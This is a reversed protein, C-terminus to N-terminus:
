TTKYAFTKSSTTGDANRITMKVTLATYTLLIQEEPDAGGSHGAIQHSVVRAGSITWRLYELNRGDIIETFAIYTSDSLPRLTGASNGLFGTSSDIRKTIAIGQPLVRGTPLGTAPDIPRALNFNASAIIIKNLYGSDTSEGLVNPISLYIPM